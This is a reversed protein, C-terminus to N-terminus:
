YNVLNALTDGNYRAAIWESCEVNICVWLETSSVEDVGFYDGRQSASLTRLVPFSTAPGSRVNLIYVTTFYGLPEDQRYGLPTVVIGSPTGSQPTPTDIVSVDRTATPTPSNTSTATPTSSPDVGVTATATPHDPTITVTATGNPVETPELSCGVLLVLLILLRKM